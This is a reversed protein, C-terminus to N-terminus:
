EASLDYYFTFYIDDIKESGDLSFLELQLLGTLLDDEINIQNCSFELENKGSEIIKITDKLSYMNNSFDEINLEGLVLNINTKYNQYATGLLSVKLKLGDDQTRKIKKVDYYYTSSDIINNMLSDYMIEGETNVITDNKILFISYGKTKSKHFVTFNKAVVPYGNNILAETILFGDENYYKSIGNELGNNYNATYKIKGNPFYETFKGTLVSDILRFAFVKNGLSDFELMNFTGKERDEISKFFKKSRVFETDPYFTTEVVDKHSYSCSSFVFIILIIKYKM